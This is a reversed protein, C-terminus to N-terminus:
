TVLANEPVIRPGKQRCFFVFAGLACGAGVRCCCSANAMDVGLLVSYAGLIYVYVDCVVM